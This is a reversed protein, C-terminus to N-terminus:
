ITHADAIRFSCTPHAVGVKKSHEGQRPHHAYGVRCVPVPNSPREDAFGGAALCLVMIAVCSLQKMM